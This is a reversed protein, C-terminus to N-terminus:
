SRVAWIAPPDAKNKYRVETVKVTNPVPVMIWGRACQGLRIGEGRPYGPTPFEPAPRSTFAAFRRNESDFVSWYEWGLRISSVPGNGDPPLPKKWCFEADIGAWHAGPTEPLSDLTVDPRYEHVTVTGVSTAATEGVTRTPPPTPAVTVGPPPRPVASTLPLVDNSTRTCGAALAPALSLVLVAMVRAGIM